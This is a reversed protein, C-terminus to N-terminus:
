GGFGERVSLGAGGTGVDPQVGDQEVSTGPAPAQRARPQLLDDLSQERQRERLGGDRHPPHGNAQRGPRVRRLSRPRTICPDTEPSHPTHETATEARRLRAHATM